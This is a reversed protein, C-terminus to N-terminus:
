QYKMIPKEYLKYECVINRQHPSFHVGFVLYRSNFLLLDFLELFSYTMHVHKLNQVIFFM